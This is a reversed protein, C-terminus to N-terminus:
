IKKIGTIKEIYDDVDKLNIIKETAIVYITDYIFFLMIIGFFVSLAPLMFGIHLFSLVSFNTTFIFYIVILMLINGIIRKQTVKSIVLFSHIVNIIEKTMKAIKILSHITFPLSLFLLIIGEEFHGLDSLIYFVAFIALILIADKWLYKGEAYVKKTIEEEIDRKTKYVRLAFKDFFSTKPILIHMRKFIKPKLAMSSLFASIIFAIGFASLIESAILGKNTADILLVLSFESLSLMIASSRIAQEKNYEQSHYLFFVTYFKLFFNLIVFLIIIAFANIVEEIHIMMGVSFFFLIIFLITFPEFNKKITESHRTSGALNGAIFAGIMGSFGIFNTLTAMVVCLIITFLLINEEVKRKVFFNFIKDIAKLLVFYSFLILLFIKVISFEIHGTGSILAMLIIVFIDEIILVGVMMQIEKEKLIGKEEALRAVVATSSFTFAGALVIAIEYSFLFLFIQYCIMFIFFFKLLAIIVISFANKRIKKIDFEMGILFLLLLVGIESFFKIEDPQFIGVYAFCIGAFIVGIIYSQRLLIFVTTVLVIAIIALSILNIDM